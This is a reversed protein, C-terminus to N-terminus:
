QRHTAAPQEAVRYESASDNDRVTVQVRPIPNIRTMGDPSYLEVAFTEDPEVNLDNLLPIYIARTTQGDAFEAIGRAIERFDENPRASGALTRWLVAARGDLQHRRNIRLVASNAGESVSIAGVDFSVLASSGTSYDTEADQSASAFESANWDQERTAGWASVPNMPVQDLAAFPDDESSTADSAEPVAADNT